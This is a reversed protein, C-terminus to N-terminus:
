EAPLGRMQIAAGKGEGGFTVAFVGDGHASPDGHSSPGGDGYEAKKLLIPLFILL